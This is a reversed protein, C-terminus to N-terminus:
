IPLSLCFNNQRMGNGPASLSLRSLSFLNHLHLNCKNGNINHSLQHKYELQASPSYYSSNVSSGKQYYLETSLLMEKLPLSGKLSIRILRGSICKASREQLNGNVTNYKIFYRYIFIIADNKGSPM